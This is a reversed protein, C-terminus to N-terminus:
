KRFLSLSLTLYNHFSYIGVLLVILGGFTIIITKGTTFFPEDHYLNFESNM